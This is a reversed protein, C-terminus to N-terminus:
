TACHRFDSWGREGGRHYQANRFRANLIHPAGNRAERRGIQLADARMGAVDYFNSAARGRNSAGFNGVFMMFADNLNVARGAAVAADSKLFLHGNRDNLVRLSHGHPQRGHPYAGRRCDDRDFADYLIQHAYRYRLAAYHAYRRKGLRHIELDHPRNRRPRDHNSRFGIDTHDLPLLGRGASGGHGVFIDSPQFAFHRSNAFHDLERQLIRM